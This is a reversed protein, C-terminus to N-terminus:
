RQPGISDTCTCPHPAATHRPLIMDGTPQGVYLIEGPQLQSLRQKYPSPTDSIKVAFSVVPTDPLSTLTFIRTKGRPDILDAISFEAYQGALYRIPETPQFFYEWVDQSRQTRGLFQLAVM